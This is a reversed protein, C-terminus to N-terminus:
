QLVLDCIIPLKNLTKSLDKSIEESFFDIIM